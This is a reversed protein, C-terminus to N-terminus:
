PERLTRCRVHPTCMLWRVMHMRWCYMCALMCPCANLGAHLFAHMCARARPTAGRSGRSAAWRKVKAKDEDVPSPEIDLLLFTVGRAWRPSEGFHLQWNLRAGVVLVVDAGQLPALRLWLNPLPGSRQLCTRPAYPM